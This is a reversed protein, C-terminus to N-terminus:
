KKKKPPECKNKAALWTCAQDGTCEAQSKHAKCPNPDKAQAATAFSGAAAILAAAALLSIKRM